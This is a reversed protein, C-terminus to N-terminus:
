FGLLTVGIVVTVPAGLLNICKDKVSKSTLPQGGKLQQVYALLQKPTLKLLNETENRLRNELDLNGGALASLNQLSGQLSNKIDGTSAINEFLKKFTSDLQDIQARAVSGLLLAALIFTPILKLHRGM